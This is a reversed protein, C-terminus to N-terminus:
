PALDRAASSFASRPLVPVPLLRPLRLGARLGAGSNLKAYVCRLDSLRPDWVGVKMM